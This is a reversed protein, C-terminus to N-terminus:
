YGFRPYRVSAEILKASLRKDKAPQRLGYSVIRRSVGAMRCAAQETLGKTKLIDLAERRVAPTVM